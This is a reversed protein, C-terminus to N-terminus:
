HYAIPAVVKFYLRVSYLLLSFFWKWPNLYPLVNSFYLLCPCFGKYLHRFKIFVIHAYMYKYTLSFFPKRRIPTMRPQEYEPEFPTLKSCRSSSGCETTAALEATSQQKQHKLQAFFVLM